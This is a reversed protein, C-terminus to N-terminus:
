HAISISVAGFRQPGDQYKFQETRHVFTFALQVDRYHVAVGAQLDGTFDRRDEVRPSDRWLNGDLFMDRAVARGDVGIFAYGGFPNEPTGPIFDGAGALAPRIRPPGFGSDLDWGIRATMGMNAYTRVNGLAVGVHTGIDTKLGLPLDPGDYIRLRQAIIELGPEDKLQHDWGEAQDVGIIKHWNNQVFEGAASPGVIGLNIQLTDQIGKEVDTAVATGSLSLWAAYPRDKPDPDPTHINEPTFIAQSIGFGQRLDTREMDLWPLRNAVWDLAPFVDDAASVREIRLGNSYNRDTGGGFFDNETTVSIVAPKRAQIPQLDAEEQASAHPAFFFAAVLAAGSPFRAKM